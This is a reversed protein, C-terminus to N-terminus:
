YERNRSDRDATEQPFVGEATIIRRPLDKGAMYDKVAKMLQSGLLPSCEVTCNLTGVKMAQFAARVADISIVIVDKGPKRGARELVSIAGFAMDDNHCFLVRFRRNDRALIERMIQAGSAVTFDGAESVIIRYGPRTAIIEEFGIKRDIAPASGETGRIEVIDVYDENSLKELLWRAARRGEERFDSGMFSLLLSEDELDVGRDTLIVPIGAQKAETLIEEWGTEVVPSFAIMDVRDRICTRIGEVQLEQRQHGDVFSLKIGAKRAARKISQTNAIRWASETGVQVFGLRIPRDLPDAGRASPIRAGNVSGLSDSFVERPRLIIKKPIGEAKTLVDMAYDVSEKGGTPCTFTAALVGRRVLEVGGSPGPLGDIGIFRIKERLGRKDAARWAGWAMADNHAFVVDVSELSELHRLFEDEAKDRMWDGVVPPLVKIRKDNKLVETFGLSRSVTPPSGPRGQIELITGGDEGLLRQAVLGAEKGLGENDPGIFLTYDYGEVDRDLVIVPIRAYLERVVPTLAKADTPSIILLDVGYGMLRRVDSIQRESSDDADAYIVALNSYKRSTEKIEANMAVRWPETLNAQSVGILYRTGPDYPREKSCASSLFFAAM